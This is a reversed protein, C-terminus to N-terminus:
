QAVKTLTNAVGAYATFNADNQTIRFENAVISM